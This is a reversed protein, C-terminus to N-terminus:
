YIIFYNSVSAPVIAFDCKRRTCRVLNTSNLWNAGSLTDQYRIDYFSIDLDSAQSPPTWTLKMHDQGHMEVAFDQVNSPVEVGGVIKRTASVFTSKVGLTNVARVRVQYTAEDIVNLHQYNLIKGVAIERFEETVANGDQDLTQKIQVEYNDVFNDTSAGVLITLRTIVIGDAYEILEDDLTM